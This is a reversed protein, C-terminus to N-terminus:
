RSRPIELVLPDPVADAPGAWLTRDAGDVTTAVVLRYLSLAARSARLESASITVAPGAPVSPVRPAFWAKLAPLPRGDRARLPRVLPEPASLKMEVVAPASDVRYGSLLGYGNTAPDSAFGDFEAGRPLDATSIRGM